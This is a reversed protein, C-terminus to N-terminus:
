YDNNLLYQLEILSFIKETKSFRENKGVQFFDCSFYDASEKDDKGDGIIAINEYQVNFLNKIKKVRSIKSEPGGIVKDFFRGWGKKNIIYSLDSSPTASSLVIYKKKLVLSTLLDIAGNIEKANIVLENVVSSYESILKTACSMQNNKLDRKKVYEKWIGNRDKNSHTLIENMLKKGHIDRSAIDLFANKKIENSDVLTGDFDFIVLEYM